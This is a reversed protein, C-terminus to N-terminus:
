LKSKESRLVSGAAYARLKEVLDLARQRYIDSSFTM